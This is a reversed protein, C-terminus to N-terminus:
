FRSGEDDGLGLMCVVFLEEGQSENPNATLAGPLSPPGAQGHRM